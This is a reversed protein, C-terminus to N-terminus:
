KGAAQTGAGRREVLRFEVDVPAEQLTLGEPMVYRVRRTSFTEAVRDEPGVDLYARIGSGAVGAIGGGEPLAATMRQRLQGIAGASGAVTVRVFKPRM